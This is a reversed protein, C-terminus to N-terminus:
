ASAAMRIAAPEGFGRKIQRPELARIEVAPNEVAWTLTRVMQQLTVLALREAGGRTAPILRALAYLPILMAPWRHGRGLVYWPRVFTAPLGSQMLLQEGQARAAQYEQMVPAPRAVSLYIFHRVHARKAAQVAQM